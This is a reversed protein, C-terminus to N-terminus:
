LLNVPLEEPGQPSQAEQPPPEMKHIPESPKRAESQSRRQEGARRLHRQAEVPTRSEDASNEPSLRARLRRLVVIAANIETATADLQVYKLSKAEGNRMTRVVKKGRVTLRVLASRRHEPNPALEVYGDALLRNVSSQINQRSTSHARAVQPVTKPGLQHLTQLVSAGAVAVPLPQGTGIATRMIQRTLVRVERLLDPWWAISRAEAVISLISDYHCINTLIYERALSRISVRTLPARVSRSAGSRLQLTRLVQRGARVHVERM